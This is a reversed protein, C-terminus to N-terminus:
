KRFQYRIGVRAAQRDDNGGVDVTFVLRRDARFRLGAGASEGIGGDTFESRHLTAILEVGASLRARMGFCLDYGEDNVNVASDFFVDDSIMPTDPEPVIVFNSGPAFFVDQRFKLKANANVYAVDFFLDVAPAVSRHYGLGFSASRESVDLFGSAAEGELYGAGAFAHFGAGVDVSIGGSVTGHEEGFEDVDVVGASLYLYNYDFAQAPTALAVLM